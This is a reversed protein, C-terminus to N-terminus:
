ESRFGAGASRNPRDDCRFSLSPLLSASGMKSSLCLQNPGEATFNRNVLDAPRVANNDGITTRVKKGRRAGQLGMERMLREVTCWAIEIGERHLQRWVKPAGYVYRNEDYVRPIEVLM